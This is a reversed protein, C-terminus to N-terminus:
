RRRQLRFGAVNRAQMELNRHLRVFAFWLAALLLWPAAIAFIAALWEFSGNPQLADVITISGSIGFAIFLLTGIVLPIGVCAEILWRM